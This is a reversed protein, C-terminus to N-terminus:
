RGIRDLSLCLLASFRGIRVPAGLAIALQAVGARLGPLWGLGGNFLDILAQRSPSRIRCGSRLAFRLVSASLGLIAASVRHSASKRSVAAKSHGRRDSLALCMRESSGVMGTSDRRM